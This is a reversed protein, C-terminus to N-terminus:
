LMTKLLLLNSVDLIDLMQFSTLYVCLIDM